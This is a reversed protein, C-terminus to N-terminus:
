ALSIDRRFIGAQSSACETPETVKAVDRLWEVPRSLVPIVLDFWANPYDRSSSQFLVIPASSCGRIRRLTKESVERGPDTILIADAKTRNFLNDSLQDASICVDVKFGARRLVSVRYCIDEGVHVIRPM